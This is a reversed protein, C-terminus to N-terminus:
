LNPKILMSPNIFGDFEKASLYNVQICADRLSLNNKQEYQALKAAKDYGIHPTLAAVLMLSQEVYDHLQKSNAELDKVVYLSFSECTDSLLRIARLVNFIIIPKFVNLELESQAAAWTIVTDCGMVEACVMRMVECQSPNVKGPMISSGPENAPLLLENLGCRPGSSLWRIDNAIKNLSIALVKLTGSVSAFVDHATILAFKNKAVTFTFCTAQQIERVMLQDFDPHANMGTGVATGGIPLSYLEKLSDNIRKINEDLQAVYGSFEQGLTMPVADQLHTRGVKLMANFTKQKKALADRLEKVAPLLNGVLLIVTSGHMATSFVDNTSQSLNVHDNPHIPNKSGKHGGALEIARNAIVENMNMNTQTGSGSQFVKLPFHSLLKGFMVEEAAKIIWRTKQVPLLGLEGNVVAASRKILGLAWIMELPMLDFGVSFHELARQTQAGWYKDDPVSIAGFTDTERRSKTM